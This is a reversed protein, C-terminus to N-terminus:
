DYTDEEAGASLFGAAGPMEHSDDKAASKALKDKSKSADDRKGHDQAAAKKQGKHKDTM